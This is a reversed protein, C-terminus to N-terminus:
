IQNTVIPAPFNVFCNSEEKSHEDWSTWPKYGYYLHSAIKVVNLDDNYKHISGEFEGLHCYSLSSFEQFHKVNSLLNSELLCNFVVTVVKLRFYDQM